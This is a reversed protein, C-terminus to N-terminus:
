RCGEKRLARAFVKMLKCAIFPSVSLGQPLRTFKYLEGRFRITLYKQHDKHVPFSFFMDKIDLVSLYDGKQVLAPVDRLTEYRAKRASLCANVKRMDALPRFSPPTTGKDQPFTRNVYRPDGGKVLIGKEILPGYANDMAARQASSMRHEDRHEDFYPIFEEIPLRAGHQIIKRITRNGGSHRVWGDLHQQVPALGNDTISPHLTSAHARTFLDKKSGRGGATVVQNQDALRHAARVSTGTKARSRPQQPPCAKNELRVAAQEKRWERLQGISTFTQVTM